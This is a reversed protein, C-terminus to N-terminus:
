GMPIHLNEHFGEVAHEVMIDVLLGMWMIAAFFTGLYWKKMSPKRCDPITYTFFFLLPFSIM